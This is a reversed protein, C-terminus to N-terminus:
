GIFAKYLSPGLSETVLHLRNSSYFYDCIELCRSESFSKQQKLYNLIYIEYISQDLYVKKDKIIKMTYLAKSKLHRCKWIYSFTSEDIQDM